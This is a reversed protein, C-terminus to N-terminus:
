CGSGGPMRCWSPLLSWRRPCTTWPCTRLAPSTEAPDRWARPLAPVSRDAVPSMILPISSTLKQLAAIAPTGNGIIADPKLAVLEAALGSMLDYNGNAVREDVVLNQGEVYGLERMKRKWPGTIPVGASFLEAGPNLYGVRWIRSSRQAQACLPFVLAGIILPMVERRKM